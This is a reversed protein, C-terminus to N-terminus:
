HNVVFSLDNRNLIKARVGALKYAIEHRFDGDPISPQIDFSSNSYHQINYVGTPAYLTYYDTGNQSKIFQFDYAGALLRM